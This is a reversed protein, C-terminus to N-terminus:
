AWDARPIASTNKTKKEYSLKPIAIVVEQVGMGSLVKLVRDDEAIIPINLITSGVKNSDTDVFCLPKYKSYRNTILDKAFSVGVTGAGVIAIGIQNTNENEKPKRDIYLQYCFRMSLATICDVTYFALLQLFTIPSLSFGNRNLLPVISCFLLVSVVGATVDSLILRIYDVHGAYRWVRGYVSWAFRSVTLLAYLVIAYAFVMPLGMQASFTQGYFVFMMLFCVAFFCCSDLVFLLLRRKKM